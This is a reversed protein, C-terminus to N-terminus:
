VPLELIPKEPHRRYFCVVQGIGHVKEAGCQKTIDDMWQRRLTRDARIRVKILEHLDLASKIEGLVNESLGKDGVMVVPNLKHTLGRLYRLQRNNLTMEDNEDNNQVQPLSHDNSKLSPRPASELM